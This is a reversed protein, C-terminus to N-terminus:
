MDILHMNSIRIGHSVPSGSGKWFESSWWYSQSFTGKAPNDHDMYQQFTGTGTTALVAQAASMELAPPVPKRQVASVAATMLSVVSLISAKM